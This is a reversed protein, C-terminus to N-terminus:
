NKKPILFSPIDLDALDLQAKENSNTIDIVGQLYFISLLIENKARKNDLVLGETMWIQHLQSLAYFEEKVQQYEGFLLHESATLQYLIAESSLEDRYIASIQTIVKKLQEVLEAINNGNVQHYAFSEMSNATNILEAKNLPIIGGEQLKEKLDDLTNKSLVSLRM